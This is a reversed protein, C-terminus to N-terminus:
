SCFETSWLFYNNLNKLNLHHEMMGDEYKGIKLIAPELIAGINAM